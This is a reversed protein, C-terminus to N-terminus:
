QRGQAKTKSDVTHIVEGCKPCPYSSGSRDAHQLLAKRERALLQNITFARYRLKLLTYALQLRLKLIYPIRQCQALFTDAADASNDPSQNM